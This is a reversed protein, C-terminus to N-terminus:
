EEKLLYWFVNKMAHLYEYIERKTGSMIQRILVHREKYEDKDVLCLQTMNYAHELVLRHNKHTCQNNVLRLVAEIDVEKIRQM